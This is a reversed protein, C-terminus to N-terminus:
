GNWDPLNELYEPCCGNLWIHEKDMRRVSVIRGRIAGYLAGGLLLVIGCLMQWGNRLIIGGVFLGIGLLALIWALRVAQKRSARHKECLGVSIKARQRVLIAVILYILLNLLIVLYLAPHHWYLNRPMKAGNVPSNCKVCRDPLEADRRMILTQGQRWVGVRGGKLGEKLKQIFVPKCQACVWNNTLFLMEDRPFSRGCEVCSQRTGPGTVSPAAALAPPASRSRVSGYPRWADLGAHWVLTADTVTGARVLEELQSDSVPGKSKGNQEFHWDM